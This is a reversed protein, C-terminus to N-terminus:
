SAETAASAPKHRAQDSVGSSVNQRTMAWIKEHFCDQLWDQFGFPPLKATETSSYTDASNQNFCVM